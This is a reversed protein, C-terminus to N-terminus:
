KSDLYEKIHKQVIELHSSEIIKQIEQNSKKQDEDKLKFNKIKIILSKFFEKKDNTISIM